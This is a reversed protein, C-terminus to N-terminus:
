YGYYIMVNKRWDFTKYIRVLEFIAYEYKWSGTISEGNALDYPKLHVWEIRMDRIHHLIQYLAAQEDESITSFDFTYKEKSFSYDAQVSKLFPRNDELRGSTPEIFPLFMQNYFNIVRQRYSEILYELFEKTVIYFDHEYYREMLQKNKFFKKLSKKPPDFNTYKGFEHLEKGFEYVGKHWDGDTDVEINYFQVLQEETLSKIKNYERKPMQSIYTRYGMIFTQFLSLVLETLKLTEKM